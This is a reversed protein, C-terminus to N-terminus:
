RRLWKEYLAKEEQSAEYTEDLEYRLHPNAAILVSVERLKKDRIVHFKVKKGPKQRSLWDDWNELAIGDMSVIQDKVNLGDREATSGRAVYRINKGELEIGLYAEEPELPLTQLKLGMSAFFKAYPLSQTGHIYQAFFSTLDTQTYKELCDQLEHDRFGRNEQLYFSQYMERMVEDLCHKGQSARIIKWDLLLAIVAGKTYYSIRTNRANENPRYAKIWADMSAESLSQQRIGPYREITNIRSLHTQVFEEESLFGARHMMLKEYYSTFGEVFWLLRSYNEQTYDFPGLPAPRLRKINWIHFYEHAVLSLFDVYSSEEEFVERKVQLTCSNAHELGGNYRSVSLVLFIYQDLPNHGMLQHGAEVIKQMDALLTEPIGSFGPYMAVQHVTDQAKFWQMEHNGLVMPSDLLTDYDAAFFQNKKGDLSPLACSIQKWHPPLELSLYVPLQPHAKWYMFLGAGLLSALDTDVFNTRVSLDFAYIRYSISVHKPKHSALHVRWTCKDIKEFPLDLSDGQGAFSELHQAYERLLYSGPTWVPLQFDAYPALCYQAFGEIDLRVSVYHTQPDDISLTYHLPSTPFPM